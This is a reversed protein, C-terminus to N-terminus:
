RQGGYRVAGCLYTPRRVDRTTPPRMRWASERVGLRRAQLEALCDWPFPWGTFRPMPHDRFYRTADDATVFEFVVQVEGFDFITTSPKSCTKDVIYVPLGNDHIAPFPHTKCISDIPKACTVIMASGALAACALVLWAKDLDDAVRRRLKEREVKNVIYVGFFVIALGVGSSAFVM